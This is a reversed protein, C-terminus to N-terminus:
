SKFSIGANFRNRTAKRRKSRRHQLSQMVTNEDDMYFGEPIATCLGLGYDRDFAIYLSPSCAPYYGYFEDEIGEEKSEIYMPLLSHISHGSCCYTTYYGRKNLEQVVPAIVEDVSFWGEMSENDESVSPFDWMEYTKEKIYVM